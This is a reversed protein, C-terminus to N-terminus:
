FFAKTYFFRTETEIKIFLTKSFYYGKPLMNCLICFIKKIKQKKKNTKILKYMSKPNIIYFKNINKKAIKVENKKNSNIKVNEFLNWKKNNKRQLKVDSM